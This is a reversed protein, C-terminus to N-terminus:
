LPQSAAIVNIYGNKLEATANVIIRREDPFRKRQLRLEDVLRLGDDDFGGVAESLLRTLEIIKAEDVLAGGGSRRHEEELLLLINWIAAGRQLANRYDELTADDELLDLIPEAFSRLVDSMKPLGAATPLAGGHGLVKALVHRRQRASRKDRRKARARASRSAAM